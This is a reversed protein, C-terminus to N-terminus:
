VFNPLPADKASVQVIDWTGTVHDGIKEHEHSMAKILDMRALEIHEVRIVDNVNRNWREGQENIVQFGITDDKLINNRHIGIDIKEGNSKHCALIKKGSRELDIKTVLHERGFLDKVTVLENTQM